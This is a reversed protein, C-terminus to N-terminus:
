TSYVHKPSTMHLDGIPYSFREQHIRNGVLLIHAAGKRHDEQFKYKPSKVM